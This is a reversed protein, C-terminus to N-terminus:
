LDKKLKRETIEPNNQEEKQNYHIRILIQIYYSFMIVTLLKM